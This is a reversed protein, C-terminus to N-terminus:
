KGGGPKTRPQVREVGGFATAGGRGGAGGAQGVQTDDVETTKGPSKRGQGDAPKEPGCPPTMPGPKENFPAQGTTQWDAGSRENRKDSM